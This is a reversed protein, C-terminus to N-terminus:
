CDDVLPDLDISLNPDTAASEATIKLDKGDTTVTVAGDSVTTFTAIGRDKLLAITQPCPHSSFRHGVSIVAVRAGLADLFEPRLSEPAGHHPAKLVDCRLDDGRDVLRKQVSPTLDGTFLVSVAGYTLRFVVSLANPDDNPVAIDAAEPHLVEISVPGFALTDGRGICLVDVGQRGARALLTEYGREGHVTGVLIRKVSVNGLLSTLGGYHDNHSHTIIAADITGISRLALLPLVYATGADFDRGAAGADVLLRKGGPVEVLCADGDGVYIFTLTLQGDPPGPIPCVLFGYLVVLLVVRYCRRLGAGALSLYAVAASYVLIRALSPRGTYVLTPMATTVLGVLVLIMNAVTSASRVFILALAQSVPLAVAAEIGAAVVLTVLPLVALNAVPGLLSVRGFHYLLVPLTLVQASFSAAIGSLVYTKLKVALSSKGMGGPAIQPVLLTIGFVAGLSLKFGVDWALHPFILLLGTGATCVLNPYDVKWELLKSLSVLAFFATARQASPRGGTFVAYGLVIVMAMVIRIRRPLRMTSLFSVAVLVVIGVHLGSIALVHYTGAKVMQSQVEPSLSSRQGLLLAELMGVTSGPSGRRILDEFRRRFALLGPISGGGTAETIHAVDVSGVSRQRLARTLGDPGYPNLRRKPASFTGTVTLDRGAPRELGAIGRVLVRRGHLSYPGVIVKLVRAVVQQMCEGAVIPLRLRLVVPVRHAVGLDAPIRERNWQSDPSRLLALLFFAGIVLTFRVRRCTALAICVAFLGVLMVTLLLGYSM